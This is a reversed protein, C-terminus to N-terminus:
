SSMVDNIMYNKVTRNLNFLYRRNDPSDSTPNIDVTCMYLIQPVPRYLASYVFVLVTM